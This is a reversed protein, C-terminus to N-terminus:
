HGGERKYANNYIMQIQRYIEDRESSTLQRTVSEQGNVRKNNPCTGWGSCLPCYQPTVSNFDLMASMNGYHHLGQGPCKGTGHCVHCEKLETVGSFLQKALQEVLLYEEVTLVGDYTDNSSGSHSRSSLRGTGVCSPCTHKHSHGGNGGNIDVTQGCQPCKVYVWGLGFGSVKSYAYDVKGTGRCRSCTQSFLEMPILLSLLFLVTLVKLIKM